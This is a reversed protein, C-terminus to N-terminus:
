DVDAPEAEDEEEEEAEEEGCDEVWAAQSTDIAARLQVLEAALWERDAAPLTGLLQPPARRHRTLASCRRLSRASLAGGGGRRRLRARAQILV